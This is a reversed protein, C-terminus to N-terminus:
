NAGCQANICIGYGIMLWAPHVSIAQNREGTIVDEYININHTQADNGQPERNLGMMIPKATARLADDGSVRRDYVIHYRFGVDRFHVLNGSNANASYRFVDVNTRNRFTEFAYNRSSISFLIGSHIVGFLGLGYAFFIVFITLLPISELLAQGSENSLPRKLNKTMAMM